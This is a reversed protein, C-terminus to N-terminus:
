SLVFIQYVAEGYRLLARLTRRLKKCSPTQSSQLVSVSLECPADDACSTLRTFPAALLARLQQDAAISKQVQGSSSFRFFGSAPVALARPIFLFAERPQAAPPAAAKGAHLASLRVCCM